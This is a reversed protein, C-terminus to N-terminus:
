KISLIEQVQTHGDVLIQLCVKMTHMVVGFNETVLTKQAIITSTVVFALLFLAYLKKM